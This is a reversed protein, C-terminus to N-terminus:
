SIQLGTAYSEFESKGLDDKLAKIFRDENSKILRKLLTLQKIRFDIDLTTGTHFFDRQKDLLRDLEQKDMIGEWGCYIIKVM